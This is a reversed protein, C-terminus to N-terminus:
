SFYWLAAVVSILFQACAMIFASVWLLGFLHYIWVYRTTTSWKVEGIPLGDRKEVDGVSFVWIASIVWFVVWVGIILFFVGPVFFIRTTNRVFDSAAQMIAAALQINRWCCCILVLYIFCLVWIVIAMAIMLNRTHDGAEYTLGVYFVYFGGGVLLLFIIVMSIYIMPKAIWRLLFLYALSFVLSIGAAVLLIWWAVALDGMYRGLDGSTFKEVMFEKISGDGPICFRGM